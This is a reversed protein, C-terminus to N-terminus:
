ERLCVYKKDVSKTVEKIINFRKLLWLTLYLAGLSLYLFPTTILRLLLFLGFAFLIPIYSSVKPNFIRSNLIQYLLDQFTGSNPLNKLNLEDALEKVIKEREAPPLSVLTRQLLEPVRPDRFLAFIEKSSFAARTKNAFQPFAESEQGRRIIYNLYAIEEINAKLIPFSKGLVAVSPKVFSDFLGRPVRFAKPQGKWAPSVYSVSAVFVFVSILFFPVARRAIFRPSMRVRDLYEYRLIKTSVFLALIIVILGAVLVLIQKIGLGLFFLLLFVPLAGLVVVPRQGTDVSLLVTLIWVVIWAILAVISLLVIGWAFFGGVACGVAIYFLSAFVFNLIDLIVIGHPEFHTNTKIM